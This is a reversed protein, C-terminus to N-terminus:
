GGTEGTGCASRCTPRTRAAWKRGVTRARPSSDQGRNPRAASGVTEASTATGTKAPGRNAYRCSLVVRGKSLTLAPRSWWQAGALTSPFRVPRGHRTSIAISSARRGLLSDCALGPSGGLIRDLARTRGSRAGPAHRRPPSGPSAVARAPEGRTFPRTMAPPSCRCAWASDQDCPWLRMRSGAAPGHDLQVPGAEAIM